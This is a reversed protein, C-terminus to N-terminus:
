REQVSEQPDPVCIHVSPTHVCHEHLLGSSPPRSVTTGSAGVGGGSAGVGGGSAGVGGGSAGVHAPIQVGPETLPGSM